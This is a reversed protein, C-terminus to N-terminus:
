DLDLVYEYEEINKNTPKYFKLEKSNLKFGLKECVRKSKNNGDYFHIIVKKYKLEKLYEIISQVAETAYGKGWYDPHINYSLEIAGTEDERDALINGIPINDKKLYLYWDYIKDNECENYYEEVNDGIFDIPNDFKVLENQGDIGTCKTLDYEYVKKSAFSDGKKLIMRDTEINITEYKKM